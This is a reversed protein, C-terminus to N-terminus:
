PPTVFLNRGDSSLRVRLVDDSHLVLTGTSPQYNRALLRAVINTTGGANDTVSNPVTLTDTRLGSVTGIRVRQTSSIMAYVDAQETSENTFILTARERNGLHFPGCAAAALVLTATLYNRTRM